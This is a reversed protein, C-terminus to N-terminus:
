QSKMKMLRESALLYARPLLKISYLQILLWVTASSWEYFSANSLFPMVSKRNARGNNIVVKYAAPRWRNRSNNLRQLIPRSFWRWAGRTWKWLMPRHPSSKTLLLFQVSSDSDEIRRRSPCSFTNVLRDKQCNKVFVLIVRLFISDRRSTKIKIGRRSREEAKHNYQMPRSETEVKHGRSAKTDAAKDESMPSQSNCKLLIKNIGENMRNCNRKNSM